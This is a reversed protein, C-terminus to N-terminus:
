ARQLPNPLSRPSRRSTSARSCRKPLGHFRGAGRRVGAPWRRGAPNVAVGEPLAVTINRPDSEALGEATLSEEQPVHVDVTMGAPSSAATGDPTVTISPHFPLRNCGGLAPLRPRGASRYSSGPAAWSDAQITSQSPGSCSTPLALFAPPINMGPPRARCNPKAAAPWDLCGWGRAADHRPDGPVGWVTMQSSLFAAAQTINDSTVTIGYDRGSRVATDIFVPANGAPVFFGFRAPEGVAPELNFLPVVERMVGSVVGPEFILVTAVGVATQPPCRNAADQGNPIITGFQTLTCRPVPTPNGILGAPWRVSVDKPLAVPAPRSTNAGQDLTLTTTQQFPHSGASTDSLGGAEENGLEYAEVGFVPEGGVAVTPAISVAPAGGGSVTVENVGGAGPLVEVDIRLEIADFSVLASSYTCALPAGEHLQKATPCLVPGKPGDGEAIASVSLAKLGAPLTDAITLLGSTAADGLNSATVVLQGKGPTVTGEEETAAPLVSPRSGSTLHWWPTVEAANAASPAAM